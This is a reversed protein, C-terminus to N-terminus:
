LGLATYETSEIALSYSFWENVLRLSPPACRQATCGPAYTIRVVGKHASGPRAFRREVLNGDRWDEEVSEDDLTGRVTGTGSQPPPLKKFFARHVDVVINRPSFPLEPGMTRELKIADGDQQLVFARVGGPGLGVIVLSNGVKQLVGDFSGTRGGATAEVHQRMSFDPGLENPPHLICPYEASAPSAPEKSPGACSWMMLCAAIITAGRM